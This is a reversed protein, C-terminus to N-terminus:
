KLRLQDKYISRALRHIKQITNDVKKKNVDFIECIEQYSYGQFYANFIAKEFDNCIALVEQLIKKKEVLESKAAFDIPDALEIIQGSDGNNKNKIVDKIHNSIVLSAYTEFKVGREADFTQKAKLLGLIGEMFLDDEDHLGVSECKRMLERVIARIMREHKAEISFSGDTFSEQTM